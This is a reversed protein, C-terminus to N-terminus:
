MQNLHLKFLVYKVALAVGAGEVVCEVDTVVLSGAKRCSLITSKIKGWCVCRRIWYWDAHLVNQVTM